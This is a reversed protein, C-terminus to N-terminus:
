AHAREPTPAVCEGLYNPFNEASFLTKPRLWEGMDPRDSWDRIKRAVVTKCDQETAGEALRAIIMGLTGEMPPFRKGTKQNLFTLVRKASERLDANELPSKGDLPVRVGGPDVRAVVTPVLSPTHEPNLSDPILSDPILSDPPQSGRKIVESKESNEPPSGNDVTSSSPPNGPIQESPPPITSGKESYHPAQHEAFKLIQIYRNGDIEYRVIFKFRELEALLVDVDANDFPLLEGKIRKPRDELRGERDALMWLGPFIFRALISCEALDENKYFGPKINRARAM